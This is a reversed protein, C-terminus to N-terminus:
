VEKEDHAAILGRGWRVADAAAGFMKVPIVPRSLGLFFSGMARSLMSGGVLATGLMLAPDPDTQYVRRASKDQSVLNDFFAIVAGSGATRFYDLQFAVNARATAEEDRSGPHPVAAIIRPAVEYYVSNGAEGLQKWGSVDIKASV